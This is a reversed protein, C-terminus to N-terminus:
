NIEPTCVLQNNKVVLVPRCYRGCETTIRIEKDKNNLIVSFDFSPISQRKYQKLLDKLETPENTTGIFVGNIFVKYDKSYNNTVGKERCIEHILDSKVGITFGCLVAMNKVFGCQQGEPTEHPDTYGWSTTHLQRPKAIKGNKNSPTVVKRLHSLTDLYSLRRLVQAVGTKTIKQRNVTWNGTSLSYVIDKTIPVKSYNLDYEIQISKNNLIKKELELRFTRMLKAFSMKFINGILQGTSDVRKNGYHDRDDIPRKGKIVLLCKQTMYGIFRAKNFRDSEENGEHPLLEVDLMRYVSELIKELNDFNNIGSAKAIFLLAAEKSNIFFSEEVSSSLLDFTIKADEETENSPTCLNICEETTSIGLAKLVIFIPIDKTLKGFILRFTKDIIVTNKKSHQYYRLICKSVNRMENENVSRIEVTLINNKAELVFPYNNAMREQAVVVKEGGKLIFYGGPDNQGEFYHICQEKTKGNLVCLDSKLMIPIKALIVSSLVTNVTNTTTNTETVIIDVQLDSMYSLNQTRCENPTILIREGNSGNTLCPHFVPNAFKYEWIINDKQVKISDSNNIIFPIINHIFDNYSEIQQRVVGYHDYYFRIIDFQEEKSLVM